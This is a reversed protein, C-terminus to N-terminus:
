PRVLDQYTERRRDRFFQRLNRVERAAITGERIQHPALNTGGKLPMQILGGRPMAM